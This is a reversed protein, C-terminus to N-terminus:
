TGFNLFDTYDDPRDDEDEVNRIADPTSPYTRSSAFYRLSDVLHTLEHDLETKDLVDNYNKPNRQITTLCRWLEPAVGENVTLKARISKKETQEDQAEYPRLLEKVQQWGHERRDNARTLYIGFESFSESLSKGTEQRRNWLDPPAFFGSIYDGANATKIMQAAVPITKDKAYLERYVRVNGQNDIYYWLVALGDLGYDISAYRQYYKPIPEPKRLHTEASAEQFFCGEAQSLAEDITAPYDSKMNGTYNRVTEDYWKQDRSPDSYWPWFILKYSNMGAKAALV